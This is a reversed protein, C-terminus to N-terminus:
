VYVNIDTTDGGIGTHEGYPVWVMSLLKGRSNGRGREIWVETLARGDVGSVVVVPM